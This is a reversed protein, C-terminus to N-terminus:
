ENERLNRVQAQMRARMQELSERAEPRGFEGEGGDSTSGSTVPDNSITSILEEREAGVLQSQFMRQFISKGASTKPKAVAMLEAAEVEDVIESVPSFGNPGIGVVLLRRGVRVLSLYRQADFHTRGLIELAPSSFLAKGNPLVKKVIYLGLFLLIGLVVIVFLVLGVSGNASRKKLEKTEERVAASAANSASNKREQRSTRAASQAATQEALAGKGFGLPRNDSSYDREPAFSEVTPAEAATAETVPAGSLAMWLILLWSWRIMRSCWHLM